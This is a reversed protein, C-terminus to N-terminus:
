STGTGAPDTNYESFLKGAPPLFYDAQPFKGDYMGYGTVYGGVPCIFLINQSPGWHASGTDLATMPNYYVTNLQGCHDFCHFNVQKMTVTGKGFTVSSLKIDDYFVGDGLSINGDPFFVSELDPCECIAYDGLM